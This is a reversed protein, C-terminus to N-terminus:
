WKKYINIYIYISKKRNNGFSSPRKLANELELHPLFCSPLLLNWNFWMPQTLINKVFIAPPTGLAQSLGPHEPRKGKPYDQTSLGKEKQIIGELNQALVQNRGLELFERWACGEAGPICM